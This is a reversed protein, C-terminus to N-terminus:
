TGSTKKYTAGPDTAVAYIRYGAPRTPDQVYTATPPLTWRPVRTRRNYYYIKGETTCAEKWEDHGDVTSLGAASRGAAAVIDARRPGSAQDQESFRRSRSGETGRRMSEAASVREISRGIVFDSGMQKVSEDEVAAAAAAAVAGDAGGDSRGGTGAPRTRRSFRQESGVGERDAVMAAPAAAHGAGRTAGGDAPAEHSGGRDFRKGNGDAYGGGNGGGNRRSDVTAGRHVMPAIRVPENASPSVGPLRVGSGTATKEPTVFCGESKHFGELPFTPSRAGRSRGARAGGDGGGGGGYGGFGKVSRRGDGGEAGTQSEAVAASETRDAAREPWATRPVDPYDLLRRERDVFFDGSSDGHHGGKHKPPTLYGSTSAPAASAQGDSNGGAPVAGWSSRQHKTDMARM